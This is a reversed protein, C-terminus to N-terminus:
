RIVDVSAITRESHRMENVVKGKPDVEVLRRGTYDSILWNGDEFVAMGSAWGFQIDQKAGAISRVVKGAQDVEVVEGPDSISIM